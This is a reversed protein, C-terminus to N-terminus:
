HAHPVASILFLAALVGLRESTVRHEGVAEPGDRVVTCVLVHLLVGAVFAQFYAVGQSELLEIITDGFWYALTTSAVIMAFAAIAVGSGLHPRLTWWIAMGVPIRHLVIGIALHHHLFESLGGADDHSHEMEHSVDLPLLAIGDMAAHMLLGLAGILVIWSYPGARKLDVLRHVSIALTIGVAACLVAILGGSEIAEPLIHVAIIGGITVFIFGDLASRLQPRHRCAAYIFPGLALAVFSLVLNM